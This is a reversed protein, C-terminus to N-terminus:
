AIRYTSWRREGEKVLVGQAVLALLERQLTKESCDRIVNSVDKVTIADKKQLVGLIVARRDKQVEQRREVHHRKTSAEAEPARRAEFSVSYGSGEFMRGPSSDKVQGEETRRYPPVSRLTELSEPTPAGLPALDEDPFRRGRSWGIRALYEALLSLDDTVLAVSEQAVQGLYAGAELLAVTHLLRELYAVRHVQSRVSRSADPVLGLVTREVEDRMHPRMDAVEILALTASVIRYTKEMVYKAVLCEKQGLLCTAECVKEINKVARILGTAKHHQDM